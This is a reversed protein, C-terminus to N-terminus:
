FLFKLSLQAIRPDNSKTIGGFNASSLSTVPNTFNTHNILNFYEARFEFRADEKVPFSRFLGADWDFYGPGRFSGKIV